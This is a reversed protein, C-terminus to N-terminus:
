RNYVRRLLGAGAMRKRGTARGFAGLRELSGIARLSSAHIELCLTEWQSSTLDLAALIGRSEESIAGPKGAVVRRGTEDALVLYAQLNFPISAAHANNMSFPLLPIGPRKKEVAGAACALDRLRQQVSTFDSAALSEALGGRIPNLDVYTMCSLLSAEDLLAQSKFRGEWFRGTCDDEANAKRAIFENLCRMYWSLSSLRQRWVRVIDSVSQRQAESLADGAQMRKILIPGTFLQTWREIVEADSWGAARVPDVHLVLHYHNSMIAYACIDIAFVSTQIRIRDLLWQKRHEFNRGSYSDSGCL